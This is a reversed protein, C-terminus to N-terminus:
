PSSLLLLHDMYLSGSSSLLQGTEQQPGYIVEQKDTVRPFAFSRRGGRNGGEEEDDDGEDDEGGNFDTEVDRQARVEPIRHFLNQSGPDGIM